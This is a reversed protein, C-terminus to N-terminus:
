RFNELLMIGGGEQDQQSWLLRRGDPSVALGPPTPYLPSELTFILNTQRTAFDFLEIVPHEFQEATAFYIARGAWRRGSAELNAPQRHPELLFLDV